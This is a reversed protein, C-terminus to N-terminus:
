YTGYYNACSMKCADDANSVNFKSKNGGNHYWGNFGSPNVSGDNNDVGHFSSDKGSTCIHLVKGTCNNTSYEVFAVYSSDNFYKISFHSSKDHTKNTIDIAKASGCYKNPSKASVKCKCQFEQFKYAKYSHTYTASQSGNSISLNSSYCKNNDGYWHYVKAVNKDTYDKPKIWKTKACANTTKTKTTTKTRTTTTQSDTTKILRFVPTDCNRENGATDKVVARGVIYNNNYAYDYTRIIKPFNGNGGGGRKWTSFYRWNENVVRGNSDKTPDAILYWDLSYIDSPVESDSYYHSDYPTQGLTVMVKVKNDCNINTRAPWGSSNQISYGGCGADNPKPNSALYTEASGKYMYYAFAPCNPPTTDKNLTLECKKSNMLGYKNYINGTISNYGERTFIYADDSENFTKTEVNQWSSGNWHWVWSSMYDDDNEFSMVIEINSRYVDSVFGAVGTHEFEPCNPTASIIFSEELEARNGANDEAFFQAIASDTYEKEELEGYSRDGNTIINDTYDNMGSIQLGSREDSVKVHAYLGNTGTKNYVPDRYYYKEPTKRTNNKDKIFFDEIKPSITDVGFSIQKQWYAGDTDELYVGIDSIDKESFTTCYKNPNELDAKVDGINVYSIYKDLPKSNNNKDTPIKPIVCVKVTGNGGLSEKNFWGDDNRVAPEGNEKYFKVTAQPGNLTRIEISDLTAAYNCKGKNEDLEADQYEFNKTSGHITIRVKSCYSIEKGTKPNKVVNLYGENVLKGVTIYAEVNDLNEFMYQNSKYYTKAATRITAKVNEWEEEKRKDAIGILSTIAVVSIGAILAIVVLLEVLTFGKRKM